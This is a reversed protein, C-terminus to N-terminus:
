AGKHLIKGFVDVSDIAFGNVDYVSNSKYYKKKVYSLVMGLADEADRALVKRSFSHSVKKSDGSSRAVQNFSVVGIVFFQAMM